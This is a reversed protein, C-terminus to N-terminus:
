AVVPTLTSKFPERRKLHDITQKQVEELVKAESVRTSQGAQILMEGDVFVTHVNSGKAAYVLNWIV